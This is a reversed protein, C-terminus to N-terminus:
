RSSRESACLPQSGTRTACPDAAASWRRPVASVEEAGGDERVRLVEGGLGVVIVGPAAYALDSLAGWARRARPDLAVVKSPLPPLPPRACAGRGPQRASTHLPM